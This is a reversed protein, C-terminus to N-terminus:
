KASKLAKKIIENHDFALKPLKKIDFWKLDLADDSAKAKLEKTKFSYAATIIRGRPDRNVKDFIGIFKLKDAKIGTEEFLERKAADILLENEEVFGGPLAYFDKFPNNKRKILLIKNKNLVVIDVTVRM